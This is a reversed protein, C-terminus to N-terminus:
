AAKIPLHDTPKTRLHRVYRTNIVRKVMTTVLGASPVHRSGLALLGKPLPAGLPIGGAVGAAVRRVIGHCIRRYIRRRCAHVVEVKLARQHHLIGDHGLRSRCLEKQRSTLASQMCVRQRM